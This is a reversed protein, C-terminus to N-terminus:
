KRLEALGDAEGVTTKLTWKWLNEQKEVEYSAASSVTEKRGEFYKGNMGSTEPSLAFWALHSGSEETGRVVPIVMPLLPIIHPLIYFWVFIEFSSYDRALGTGPMLSPTFANATISSKADSLHQALAYTWLINALKSSNYRQMGKSHATEPNPHALEEATNYDADPLGTKQTYIPNHTGSATVFVRANPTLYATLLHFLSALGLHNIMSPNEYGEENPEMPGILQAGANLILSIVSTRQYWSSIIVFVFISFEDENVWDFSHEPFRSRFYM